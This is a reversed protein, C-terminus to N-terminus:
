NSREKSKNDIGSCVENKHLVFLGYMACDLKGNNVMEAEAYDASLLFVM